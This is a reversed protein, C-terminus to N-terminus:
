SHNDASEDMQVFAGHWSHYWVDGTFGNVSLMGEVKGDKLTHITYYGYFRDAHNEPKLGSSYKNLFEEAKVIADAELLPMEESNERGMPSYKTNWMMNPGPESSVYGYFPDILLEFANQETDSEKIQIYFNQQFEMIENIELDEMRRDNLHTLVKVEVEEISLRDGPPTDSNNGFGQSLNNGGMMGYSGPAGMMEYGGMMNYSGPGNFNNEDMMGYREDRSSEYEKMGEASVFSTVMFSIFFTLGLTILIKKM